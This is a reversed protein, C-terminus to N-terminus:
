NAETYLHRARRFTPVWTAGQRRTDWGVHAAHLHNKGDGVCPDVLVTVGDIEIGFARVRRSITGSADFITPCWGLIGATM